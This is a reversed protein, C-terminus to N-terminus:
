LARPKGGRLRRQPTFAPAAAGLELMDGLVLVRRRVDPGSEPRTLDAFARLAALMSDPNANYADNIVTVGGGPVAVVSRQMRMPAGQAHALATAAADDPVGLRRAVALAAAGNHANHAGLLGLSVTRRGNLEFRVGRLDSEVRTLRLDCREGEGFTVVQAGPAPLTALVSRAVELLLPADGNLIATGGPKLSALLSAEEAAVGRLDGLGELHERGISTVVAVDPQVVRGLAAMEGPANTGVECVLFQDGRRARLITLPVGVANNFSKESAVGRLTGALAAHTLRVTTTKGNSGGIAVVKTGPELWRRYAAALQLLARGTDEVRLVAVGAPLADPAPTCAEPRDIIVMAAGAQAAAGLFAHGDFKEGRLAVFLEGPRVARSDTSVGALPQGASEPVGRALWAGSVAAKVQEASWFTM